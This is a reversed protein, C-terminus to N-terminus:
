AFILPGGGFTSSMSARTSSSRGGNTRMKKLVVANVMGSRMSDNSLVTPSAWRASARMLMVHCPLLKANAIAFMGRKASTSVWTSSVRFM